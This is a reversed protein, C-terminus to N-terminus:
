VHAPRRSMIHLPNQIDIYVSQSSLPGVLEDMLALRTRLNAKCPLTTAFMQRVLDSNAGEVAELEFIEEALLKLLTDESVFGERGLAGILGFVTNIFVYYIVRKDVDEEDFVSESQEGFLPLVASLHDHARQHHFFGQNDRYHFQQPYGDKISVLLNQQHAEIAIGHRLYLALAPRVFLKLFLGFWRLAITEATAKEVLARRRILQGIRSGSEPFHECLAAILSVNKDADFETFPNERMSVSLNDITKGDIRVTMFAPDAILNLGPYDKSLEEWFRHQRFRFMDQGRLLERYLNVRVSNTIAVGLSLKLMFPVAPNYLTRVSSTPFWSAGVEGCDIIDGSAVLTSIQPHGLLYDAQWPHIPLFAYHKAPAIQSLTAFVGGLYTELWDEAPLAGEAQGVHIYNRKVALWRLPFAAHLEPSYRLEEAENMGVRSKPCPHAGHGALLGQEAEIFAVNEAKLADLDNQRAKLITTTMRLSALTRTIVDDNGKIRDESQELAKMVIKITEVATLTKDTQHESRFIIHSGFLHYGTASRYNCPIHLEGDNTQICISFFSDDSQSLWEIKEPYERVVCNLLSRLSLTEADTMPM